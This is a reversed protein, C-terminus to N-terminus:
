VKEYEEFKTKNLLVVKKCNWFWYYEIEDDSDRWELLKQVDKPKLTLEIFTESPFQIERRPYFKDSPKVRSNM